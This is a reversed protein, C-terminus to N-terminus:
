KWLMCLPTIQPIRSHAIHQHTPKVSGPRVTTLLAGRIILDSLRMFSQTGTWLRRSTFSPLKRGIGRSIPDTYWVHIGYMRRTGDWFQFAPTM